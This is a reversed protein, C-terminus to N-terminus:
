FTKYLSIHITKNEHHKNSHKRFKRDQLILNNNIQSLEAPSDHIRTYLIHYKSLYYDSCKAMQLQSETINM